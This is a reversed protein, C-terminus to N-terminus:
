GGKVGQFDGFLAYLNLFTEQMQAVAASVQTQDGSTLAQEFSALADSEASMCADLETKEQVDFGYLKRDFAAQRAAQWSSKAGELRSRIEAPPLGCSVESALADISDSFDVLYDPFFSISQQRRLQALVTRMGLLQEHVRSLPAGSSFLQNAASARADLDKLGELWHQGSPLYHQYRRSFRAWHLTLEMTAGKAQSMREDRDFAKAGVPWDDGTMLIAPVLSKNLQVM